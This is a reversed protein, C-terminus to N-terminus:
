GSKLRGKKKQLDSENALAGLLLVGIEVQKVNQIAIGFNSETVKSRRHLARVLWFKIYPSLTFLVFTITIIWALLQLGSLQHNM